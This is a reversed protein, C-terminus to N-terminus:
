LDPQHTMLGHAYGPPDPGGGFFKSGYERQPEFKKPPPGSGGPYAGAHSEFTWVFSWYNEFIKRCLFLKLGIEWGVWVDDDDDGIILKMFILFECFFSIIERVAWCVKLQSYDSNSNIIWGVESGSFSFSEDGPKGKDWEFLWIVM